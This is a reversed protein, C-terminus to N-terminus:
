RNDDNDDNEDNDVIIEVIIEVFVSFVVFVLYSWIHFYCDYAVAFHAVNDLADGEIADM